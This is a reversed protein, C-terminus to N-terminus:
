LPEVGPLGGLAAWNGYLEALRTIGREKRKMVTRLCVGEQEAICRWSLQQFYHMKLIEADKPALTSLYMDLRKNKLRYFDIRQLLKRMVEQSQEFCTDKYSLAINATKDARTSTQVREGTPFTFTMSEILADTEKESLPALAHLEFELAQISQARREYEELQLLVYEQVNM